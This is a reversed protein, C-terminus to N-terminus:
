RDRKQRGAREVTPATRAPDQDTSSPLSGLTTSRDAGPNVHVCDVPGNSKTRRSGARLPLVPALCMARAVWVLLHPGQTRILVRKLAAACTAPGRYLRLMTLQSDDYKGFARRKSRCEGARHRADHRADGRIGRIHEM